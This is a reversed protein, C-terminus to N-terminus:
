VNPGYIVENGIIDRLDNGADDRKSLEWEIWDAMTGTKQQQANQPNHMVIWRLADIAHNNADIPKDTNNRGDDNKPYRYQQLELILDRCHASIYIRPARKAKKDTPHKRGTRPEFMERMRAIGAMVNNNGAILPLGSDRYLDWTRIGTGSETKNSKPDAVTFVYHEDASIGLIASCNDEITRRRKYYCNYVYINGDHDAAAWLCCTPDSWGHDVGRFRPWDRPIQQPEWDIVHVERSFMPFVQGEFVDWSGEIFRRVWEEDYQDYLAQIYDRPLFSVDTTKGHFYQVDPSPKAPSVFRQYVWGHGEPNGTLWIKRPGISGRLRALIQKYIEERLECAEDPWAWDLNFSRLKEENQCHLGWAQSGNKLLVHFDAKNEYEILADPLVQRFERWTTRKLEGETLRLIAGVSGPYTLMTKVAEVSGGLTKGCGFGGFFARIKAPSRHFELQRGEPRYLHKDSPPDKVYIRLNM